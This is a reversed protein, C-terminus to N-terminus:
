QRMTVSRLPFTIPRRDIDSAHYPEIAIAREFANVAAANELLSCSSNM